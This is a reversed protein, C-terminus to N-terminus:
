IIIVIWIWQSITNVIQENELTIVNGFSEGNRENANAYKLIKGLHLTLHQQEINLHSDNRGCYYIVSHTDNCVFIECFFIAVM